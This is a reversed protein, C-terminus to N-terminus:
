AAVLMEDLNAYFEDMMSELKPLYDTVKKKFVEVEGAEDVLKFRQASSWGTTAIVEDLHTNEYYENFRDENGETPETLVLVLYRNNMPKIGAM